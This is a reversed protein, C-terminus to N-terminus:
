YFLTHDVRFRYLGVIYMLLWVWTGDASWKGFKVALVIFITFWWRMSCCQQQATSAKTIVLSAIFFYNVSDSFFGFFLSTSLLLVYLSTILCGVLRNSCIKASRQVLHLMGLSEEEKSTYAVSSAAVIVTTTFLDLTYPFFYPLSTQILRPILDNESLDKHDQLFFYGRTRPLPVPLHPLHHNPSFALNINSLLLNAARKLLEMVSLKENM